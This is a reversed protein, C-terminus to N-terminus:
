IPEAYWHRHVYPEVILVSAVAVVVGLATVPDRGYWIGLVGAAVTLYPRILTLPGLGLLMLFTAPRRPLVTYGILTLLVVAAFPAIVALLGLGARLFSDYRDASALLVALLVLGTMGLTALVTLFGRRVSTRYYERKVIMGNRGTAARFGAVAGDILAIAVLVAPVGIHSM